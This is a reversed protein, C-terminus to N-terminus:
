DWASRDAPKRNRIIEEMDAAFEADMVPTYGLEESSAKMRALTATISPDKSWASKLVVSVPEAGTDIVIEDGARVKALVGAFDRIAEAESIHTVAM